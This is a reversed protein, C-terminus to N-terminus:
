IWIVEIRIPNKEDTWFFLIQPKNEIPWTDDEHGYGAEHVVGNPTRIKYKATRPTVNVVWGKGDFDLHQPKWGDEKSLTFPGSDKSVALKLQDVSTKEPSNGLYEKTEIEKMTGAVITLMLVGCIILSAWKPSAFGIIAFFFLCAIWLKIDTALGNIGQPFYFRLFLWFAVYAVLASIVYRRERQWWCRLTGPTVAPTGNPTTQTAPTTQRATRPRKYFHVLGAVGIAIILLSVVIGVILLVTMM